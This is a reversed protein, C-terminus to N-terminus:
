FSMDKQENVTRRIGSVNVEYPPQKSCADSYRLDIM